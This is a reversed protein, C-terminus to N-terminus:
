ALLEVPRGQDIAYTSVLCHIHNPPDLSRAAACEPNAFVVKAFVVWDSPAVSAPDLTEIHRRLVDIPATSRVTDRHVRYTTDTASCLLAAPYLEIEDLRESLARRVARRIAVFDPPSLLPRPM